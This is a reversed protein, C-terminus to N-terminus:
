SVCLLESSPVFKSIFHMSLLCCLSECFRGAEPFITIAGARRWMCRIEVPGMRPITSICLVAHGNLYEYSAYPVTIATLHVQLAHPTLLHRGNEKFPLRACVSLSHPPDAPPLLPAAYWLSVKRPASVHSSSFSFLFLLARVFLM